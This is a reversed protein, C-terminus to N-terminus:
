DDLRNVEGSTLAKVLFATSDRDSCTNELEYLKELAKIRDFMKIEVVGGKARKIESVNFLDLSAIKEPSPLEDSYALYVADTCQGYALRKLGCLVDGDQSMAKRLSAIYKKCTESELCRIGSELATERDFGARLSAELVNGLIAYWCCFSKKRGDTRHDLLFVEKRMTKTFM